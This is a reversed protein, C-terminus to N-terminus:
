CSFYMLFVIVTFVYQDESAWGTTSFTHFDGTTLSTGALRCTNGTSSNWHCIRARHGREATATWCVGSPIEARASSDIESATTLRCITWCQRGLMTRLCRGCCVSCCPCEASQCSCICHVFYSSSTCGNLPRKELVVEYAPALFTFVLRSKFAALSSPTKPHLSGYRFIM